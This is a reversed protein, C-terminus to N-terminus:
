LNIPVEDQSIKPREVSLHLKSDCSLLIFYCGAPILGVVELDHTAQEVAASCSGCLKVYNTFDNGHVPSRHVVLTALM